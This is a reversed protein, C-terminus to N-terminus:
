SGLATAKRRWQSPALGSHAKFQRSFYAPDKFGLEFAIDEASRVTFKLLRKAEVLRREVVLEKVACSFALKSARELLYGTTALEEVYREIKWNERFHAEVLSRLRQALPQPGSSAHTGPTGKAIRVLSILAAGAIQGMMDPWLPLQRHYEEELREMASRLANWEQRDKRPWVFTTGLEGAVEHSIIHSLVSDEISLVIADTGPKVTFGHVTDSLVLSASPASFTWNRDEIFYNGSGKIWLTLQAMGPHKHAQVTGRHLFHRESVREVHMFGTALVRVAEGYVFYDPISQEPM